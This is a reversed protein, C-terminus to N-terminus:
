ASSPMRSRDRCEQQVARGIKDKVHKALKDWDLTKEDFVMAAMCARGDKNGPVEVGYVNVEVVGPFVSVIESVEMTSVNEGKWRFTDGIRDVFYWFGSSDRRLLDGSRFWKDGKKFVDFAIKKSTADKNGHYGDFQRVPDDDVIEGLLEGPENHSCEIARGDPGRIIEEKEVDFKVVKMKAVAHLLPGMRGVSGRSRKTTCHNMLALNGETSGYFEGVEPIQFRDQFEDWVEPRLGNGIAIRVKNVGDNPQKPAAVLYRCLEGIYQIVTANYKRCDNWFENLSFKARLAMTCGSSIMMGTGVIGGASHYLPLVCYIIDSQKINLYLTFITGMNFLRLHKITAAKPLGTTGSTYVLVCPDTFKLGARISRPLAESSQKALLADLDEAYDIAPDKEGRYFIQIKQEKIWPAIQTIHEHVKSGVILWKANSIKISHQLGKGKVNYNLLSTVGGVKAIGLWTMFYEPRNDM